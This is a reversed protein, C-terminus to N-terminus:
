ILGESIWVRLVYASQGYEPGFVSSQLYPPNKSRRSRLDFVSLNRRDEPGSSRLVGWRRGESDSYRLFGEMKTRSIRFDFFGGLRRIEIGFISFIDWRQEEVDSFSSFMSIRSTSFSAACRTRSAAARKLPRQVPVRFGSCEPFFM